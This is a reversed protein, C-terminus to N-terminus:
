GFGWGSWSSGRDGRPLCWHRLLRDDCSEYRYVVLRLELNKLSLETVREAGTRIACQSLELM